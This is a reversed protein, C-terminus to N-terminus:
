LRALWKDIGNSCLNSTGCASVYLSSGWNMIMDGTFSRVIIPNTDGSCHQDSIMICRGLGDLAAPLTITVPNSRSDAYVYVDSPGVSYDSSTISSPYVLPQCLCGFAFSITLFGCRLIHEYM